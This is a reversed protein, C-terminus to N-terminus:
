RYTLAIFPAHELHVGYDQCPQAINDLLSCHLALGLELTPQLPAAGDRGNNVDGWEVPVTDQISPPRQKQVVAGPRTLGRVRHMEMVSPGRSAGGIVLQVAQFLALLDVRLEVVGDRLWVSYRCLSLSFVSSKKESVRYSLKKSFQKLLVKVENILNRQRM